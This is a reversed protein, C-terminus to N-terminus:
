LIMEKMLTPLVNAYQENLAEFLPRMLFAICRAESLMFIIEPFKNKGNRRATNTSLNMLKQLLVAYREQIQSVEQVEGLGKRDECFIILTYVIVLEDKALDMSKITKAIACIRQLINSDLGCEKMDDRGYGMDDLEFENRAVNYFQCSQLLMMEWSAAQLLCIQDDEPLRQFDRIQKCYNITEYFFATIYDSFHAVYNLNAKVREMEDPAKPNRLSLEIVENQMELQTLFSDGSKSKVKRITAYSRFRQPSITKDTASDYIQILTDVTMNDSDALSTPARQLRRIRNRIIVRRKEELEDDNLVCDSKM